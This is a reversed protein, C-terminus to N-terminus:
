RALKSTPTGAPPAHYSIKTFPALALHLQSSVVARKSQKMTQKSARCGSVCALTYASAHSNHGSAGESSVGGTRTESRLYYLQKIVIGPTYLSM